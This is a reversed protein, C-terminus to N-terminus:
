LVPDEPRAYGNLVFGAPMDNVDGAVRSILTTKSSHGDRRMEEGTALARVATTDDEFIAVSVMTDPGTRIILIDLVGLERLLEVYQLSAERIYTKYEVDGQISEDLRSTTVIGYM